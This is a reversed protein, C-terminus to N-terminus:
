LLPKGTPRLAEYLAASVEDFSFPKFLVRESGLEVAHSRLATMFVFPMDALRARRHFMRKVEVGNMGQLIVDCLVVDIKRRRCVEIAEHAGRAMATAWGELRLGEALLTALDEHDDVILVTPM